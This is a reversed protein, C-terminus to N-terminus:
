CYVVSDFNPSRGVTECDYDEIFALAHAVLVQAKVHLSVIDLALDYRCLIRCTHSLSELDVSHSPSTFRQLIYILTTDADNSPRYSRRLSKQLPQMAVLIAVADIWLHSPM